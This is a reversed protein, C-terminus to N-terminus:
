TEFSWQLLVQDNYYFQVQWNGPMNMTETGFIKM